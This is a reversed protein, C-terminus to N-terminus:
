FSVQNCCNLADQYSNKKLKVAALNLLLQLKIYRVKNNDCVNSINNSEVWTIYRLAKKYKRGSDVYSDSQFYKNGSEKINSVM